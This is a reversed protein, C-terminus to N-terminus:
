EENAESTPNPAEPKPGPLAPATLANPSAWKVMSEFGAGASGLMLAARESPIVLLETLMGLAADRPLLGAACDKVIQGVSDMQAGNAPTARTETESIEAAKDTAVQTLIQQAKHRPVARMKQIAGVKSETGMAITSTLEAALTAGDVPIDLDAIDVELETDVALPPMNWADAHYNHVARIKRYALREDESALPIQAERRAMLPRDLVKLAAGTVIQRSSSFEEAPLDESLTWYRILAELVQQCEVIKPNPQLDEVKSTSPLEVVAAHSAVAPYTVNPDDNQHVRTTHAQNVILSWLDNAMANVDEAMARRSQRPALWARGGSFEDFIVQAPLEVYPSAGGLQAFPGPQRGPELLNGKEDVWVCSWGLPNIETKTLEDRNWLEFVDGSLRLAFAQDRDLQDPCDPSPARLVDQPYFVRMDVGRRVDSPYYRVIAQRVAARTQDVLRWAQDVQARGLVALMLQHEFSDDGLRKPAKGPVETRSLWRTAPRDYITALRMVIRRLLAVEIPRANEKLGLGLDHLRARTLDRSCDEVYRLIATAEEDLGAPKAASDRKRLDELSLM